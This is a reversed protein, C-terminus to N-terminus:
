QQLEKQIEQSNNPEEVKTFDNLKSVIKIITQDIQRIEQQMMQLSEPFSKTSIIEQEHLDLLNLVNTVKSRLSHSQMWAINKLFLIQKKLKRVLLCNHQHVKFYFEVDFAQVVRVNRGEYMDPFSSVQVYFTNGTKDQHRYYQGTVIENNRFNNLRTYLKEKEELPRIEFISLKYFEEPTYKYKKVAAKNVFLFKLTRTDYVWMPIPTATFLSSDICLAM